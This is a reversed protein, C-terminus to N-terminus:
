FGHRLRAKAGDYLLVFNSLGTAVGAERAFDEMPVDCALNLIESQRVGAMARGVKEEGGREGAGGPCRLDIGPYAGDIGGYGIGAYVKIREALPTREDKMSRTLAGLDPDDMKLQGLADDIGARPQGAYIVLGDRNTIMTIGVTQGGGASAALPVYVIDIMIEGGPVLKSIAEADGAVIRKQVNEATPLAAGFAQDGRRMYSGIEARDAGLLAGEAAGLERCMMVLFVARLSRQVMDEGMSAMAGMQETYPHYAARLKEMNARSQEPGARAGAETKDSM